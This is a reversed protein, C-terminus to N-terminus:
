DFYKVDRSTENFRVLCPKLVFMSAALIKENGGLIVVFEKDDDFYFKHDCYSHNGMLVMALPIPYKNEYYIFM